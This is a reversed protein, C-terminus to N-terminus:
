EDGSGGSTSHINGVESSDGGRRQSQQKKTEKKNDSSNNKQKGSHKQRRKREEDDYRNPENEAKARRITQESQNKVSQQFQAAMEQQGHEYRIQEANQIQSIEQSKPPMSVYDLTLSM